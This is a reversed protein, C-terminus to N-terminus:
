VSGRELVEEIRKAYMSSVGFPSCWTHMNAALDKVASLTARAEILDAILGRLLDDHSDSYHPPFDEIGGDWEELQQDTPSVPGDDVHDEQFVDRTPPYFYTM